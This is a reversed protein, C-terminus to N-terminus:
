RLAELRATSRWRGLHSAAPGAVNKQAMQALAVAIAALEQHEEDPARLPDGNRGGLKRDIFGTDFRGAIFDEDELVWQFFPITTKIGRVHYESLARRMRAIADARTNGWSVLKSIM